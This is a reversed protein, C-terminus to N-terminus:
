YQPPPLPPTKKRNDTQGINKKEDQFVIFM